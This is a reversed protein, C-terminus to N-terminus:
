LILTGDKKKVFLMPAGWPLVSPRVYGKDLMEKQQLKLEELEPTSMRYPAKSARAAGQVLEISFEVERHPPFELIDEHFVDWFQQLIPYKSLV